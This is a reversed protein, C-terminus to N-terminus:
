IVHNPVQGKIRFYHRFLKSIGRHGLFVIEPLLILLLPWQRSGSESNPVLITSQTSYHEIDIKQFGSFIPNM